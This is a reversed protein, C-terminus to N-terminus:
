TSNMFTMFADSYMIERIDYSQGQLIVANEPKMGKPRIGKPRIDATDDSERRRKLAGRRQLPVPPSENHVTRIHHNLNDTRTFTKGCGSIHCESKQVLGHANSCKLHRQLNTAGSTPKFTRPCLPCRLVDANPFQAAPSTPSRGSATMPPTAYSNPSDTSYNHPSDTSYNHPSGTFYTNPSDTSPSSVSTSSDLTSPSTSESASPLTSPSTSQPIDDTTESEASTVSLPSDGDSQHPRVVALVSIDQKASMTELTQHNSIEVSVALVKDIAIAYYKNRWRSDQQEM